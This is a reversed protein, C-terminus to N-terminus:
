HCNRPEHTPHWEDRLWGHVLSAAASLARVHVDAPRLASIPHGTGVAIVACGAAKGALVGAPSDEIVLCRGPDVGLERAALLYGDPAPKSHAVDEGYIQIRPLPLRLRGFMERVYWASGSTVIAWRDAPLSCLLRAAGPLAPVAVQCSRTLTDLAQRETGPDLHPAVARVTDEPRRGACAALVTAIHLGHSCAWQRWVAQHAATSDLLVGDVDFLVARRTDM